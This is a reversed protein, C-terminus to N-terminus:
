GPGGAANARGFTELWERVDEDVNGHVPAAPPPFYYTSEYGMEHLDVVVQPHWTNFIEVRAKSEPQTAWAWDRNMDLLYHNYRGGPWPERHEVAEPAPNPRTGIKQHFWNVYRERGDPNQLPDILVLVKERVPAAEDSLLWHATVMAAETSSSENGHIGYALWVVAPTDRAIKKAEDLSTGRPDSIRDLNSRIEELRTMNEASGIIVLNLPRGEWTEGYTELKLLESKQDLWEFYDVIRHHPTFRAGSEYGLFEWPSPVEGAVPSALVLTLLLTQISRRVM